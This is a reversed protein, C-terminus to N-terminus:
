IPATFQEDALEQISYPSHEEDFPGALWPDDGWLPREWWPDFEAAPPGEHAAHGALPARRPAEAMRPPAVVSQAYEADWGAWDSAAFPQGYDIEVPVILPGGPGASFQLRAYTQGGRALIFMLAWDANGFCRAFTAEDTGSPRPSDGPHTHIWIRAFREPALGRDVQRDFYDAVASDDFKVSIETCQQRVLCIDEVLLLDDEASLGFGGVETDGLDRLRLLKAWAYPTLRLPRTTVHKIKM